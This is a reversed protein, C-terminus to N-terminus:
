SRAMRRQLMPAFIFLAGGILILPLAAQFIGGIGLIDPTTARTAASLSNLAETTEKATWGQDRATKLLDRIGDLGKTQTANLTVITAIVALGIAVGGYVAAPVALVQVQGLYIPPTIGISQLFKKATAKAALYNTAFANFRNEIGVQNMIWERLKARLAERAGPDPVSPLSRLTELYSARNARITNQASEARANLARIGSLLKDVTWELASAM